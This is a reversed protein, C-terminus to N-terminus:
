AGTSGFGGDRQAAVNDDDTVGCPLFIALFIGDGTNIMLQTEGNQLKVFIHGENKSNSYDSDIVGFTNWLRVGYKFGLGSRPLCGLFWGPNIIARIGTPIKISHNAGLVFWFPSKFDYGASGSTARRPLQIGDYMEKIQDDNYFEDFEEKMANKFQSLSVKEFHGVVPITYNQATNSM